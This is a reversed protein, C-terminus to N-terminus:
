VHARGIQLSYFQSIRQKPTMGITEGGRMYRSGAVVDYGQELKEIMRLIDEARDSEDGMFPIVAAGRAIDFGYRLASGFGRDGVRYAVRGGAADVGPDNAARAEHERSPDPVDVVVIIELDVRDRLATLTALTGSLQPELYLVPVVVTVNVGRCPYVLVDRRLRSGGPTARARVRHPCAVKRRRDAMSRRIRKPAQQMTGIVTIRSM